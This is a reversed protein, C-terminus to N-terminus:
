SITCQSASAKANAKQIHGLGQEANVRSQEMHDEIQDVDQQQSDVIHALDKEICVTLIHKEGPSTLLM